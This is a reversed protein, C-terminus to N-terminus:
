ISPFMMIQNETFDFSGPTFDDKFYYGDYSGGWGWNCYIGDTTIIHTSNNVACRMGENPNASAVYFLRVEKNASYHQYGSVVWMHAANKDSKGTVLAPKGKRVYDSVTAFDYARADECKYGYALLADRIGSVTTSTSEGFEAKAALALQYLFNSTTKNGVTLPMASWDFTSPYKYFYMLQGAAIVGCGVPSQFVGDYLPFYYNFWERQSWKTEVFNDTGSTTSVSREIVYAYNEWNDMCMWYVNNPLDEIFAKISQNDTEYQSAPYINAGQKQWSVISDKVMQDIRDLVENDSRTSRRPYFEAVAQKEYPMWMAKVSDAYEPHDITYRVDEKIATEWKNVGEPRNLDLPNYNGNDSYALIPCYTKTASVIAFGGNDAYNVVYYLITGDADKVPTITYSSLARTTNHFLDSLVAEIEAKSTALSDGAIEFGTEKDSPLPNSPEENQCAALALLM